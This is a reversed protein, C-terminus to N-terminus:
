AEVYQMHELDALLTPGTPRWAMRQQTLTGSAALELSAFFAMTGFHAAAEEPTISVVPIGLGRGIAEAIDRLPVGDEAVAHYRAGSVGKELVLRYLSAADSRHVAAWHNQGAGVYASVGKERAVAILYSVLGQKVPDHVQPLRM